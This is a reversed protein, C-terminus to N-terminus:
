KKDKPKLTRIFCILQWRQKESLVAKYPPMPAHGNSLEYFLSGDTQLQVNPSTHDAPKVSLGASAVGDGKGGNGHCVNCIKMYLVKGSDAAAPVHVFPNKLTDSWSPTDWRKKHQEPTEKQATSATGILIFFYFLFQFRTRLPFM